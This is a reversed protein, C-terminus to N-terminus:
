PDRSRLRLLLEKMERVQMEAYVPDRARIDADDLFHGVQHLDSALDSNMVSHVIESVRRNFEKRTHVLGSLVDEVLKAARTDATM